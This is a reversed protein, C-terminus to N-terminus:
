HPWSTVPMMPRIHLSHCFTCNSELILAQKSAGHLQEMLNDCAHREQFCHQFLKWDKQLSSMLSNPYKLSDQDFSEQPAEECNPRIILGHTIKHPACCSWRGPIYGPPRMEEDVNTGEATEPYWGTDRAWPSSDDRSRMLCPRGHMGQLVKLWGALVHFVKCHAIPHQTICVM